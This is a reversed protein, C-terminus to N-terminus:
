GRCEWPEWPERCTTHADRAADGADSAHGADARGADLEPVLQAGADEPMFPATADPVAVAVPPPASLPSLDEEELGTDPGAGPTVAPGADNVEGLSEDQTAFCGTSSLCALALVAALASPAIRSVVLTEYALDWCRRLV